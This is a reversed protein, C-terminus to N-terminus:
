AIIKNKKLHNTPMQSLNEIMDKVMEKLGFKPKWNWDKRAASDDISDVWSDAIKQRFDPNYKIKFDPLHKTIEAALEAPSFSTGSLNYSTRVELSDAPAEMLQLTADITDRMYIMPLYSDEKLFCEYSNSALARHFIEVAYDTTGGGPMSEYGIVGPYRVSRIDMGYRMHYYNSWQEGALKGIGYVTEPNLPGHQPVKKKQADSGFVAISSPFFVKNVKNIRCAELINLYGKVNVEWSLLPKAEGSASLIAALNYVQTVQHKKIIEDLASKNLIDILEFRTLEEEPARIDSAIVHDYGFKEALVQSLVTGLQGNAGCLLITEKSM